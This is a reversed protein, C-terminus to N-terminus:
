WKVILNPWVEKCLLKTIGKYKLSKDKALVMMEAESGNLSELLNIFMSERKMQNMNTYPGKFFYAFLKHKNHLTAYNHGDPADDKKYPPTGEPVLSVIDDDFNIRIVDRLAPTDHEKLYAMRESKTKLKSTNKLVESILLARAM